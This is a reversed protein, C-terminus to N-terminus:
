LVVRTFVFNGKKPVAISEIPRHEAHQSAAIWSLGYISVFDFILFPRIERWLANLKCFCFCLFIERSKVRIFINKEECRAILHACNLRSFYIQVRRALFSELNDLALLDYRPELRAAM